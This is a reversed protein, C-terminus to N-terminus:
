IEMLKELSVSYYPRGNKFSVYITNHERSLKHGNKKATDQLEKTTILGSAWNKLAKLTNM